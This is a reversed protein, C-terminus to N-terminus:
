GTHWDHCHIVDPCFGIAPLCELVARNLFAYREGDDFFGYTGPRKFYAENDIFYFKVGQYELELVGCYQNRWGLHVSFRYILKMQQKYMEPTGMNLCYLGSMWVRSKLEKPLAGTCRCPGQRLFLVGEAGCVFM